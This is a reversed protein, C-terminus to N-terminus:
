NRRKIREILRFTEDARLLTLDLTAVSGSVSLDSTTPPKVDRM